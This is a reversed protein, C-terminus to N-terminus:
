SSSSFSNAMAKLWPTNSFNLLHWHCWSHLFNFRQGLCKPWAGFQPPFLFTKNEILVYKSFSVRERAVEPPTATAAVAATARRFPWPRRTMLGECRVPWQWGESTGAEPFLNSPLPSPQHSLHSSLQPCSHLSSTPCATSIVLNRCCSLLTLSPFLNPFRCYISSLDGNGM